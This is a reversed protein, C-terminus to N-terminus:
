FLLFGGSARGSITLNVLGLNNSKPLLSEEQLNRKSAYNFITSRVVTNGFFLEFSYLFDRERSSPGLTASTFSTKEELILTLTPKQEGPKVTFNLKGTGFTVM